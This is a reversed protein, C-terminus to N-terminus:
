RSLWSLVEGIGLTTGRVRRQMLLVAEHSGPDITTCADEVM